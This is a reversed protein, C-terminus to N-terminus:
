FSDIVDNWVKSTIVDFLCMDLDSGGLEDDGDTAYVQSLIPTVLELVM